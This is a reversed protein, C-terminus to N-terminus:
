CNLFIQTEMKLQQSQVFSVPPPQTKKTRLSPWVVRTFSSTCSRVSFGPAITNDTPPPPRSFPTTSPSRWASQASTGMTAMSVMPACLRLAAIFAPSSIVNGSILLYIFIATTLMKRVKKQTVSIERKATYCQLWAPGPLPIQVSESVTCRVSLRRLPPWLGPPRSLRPVSGLHTCVSCICM